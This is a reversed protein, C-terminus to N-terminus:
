ERRLPEVSVARGLTAFLREEANMPIGWRDEPGGPGAELGTYFLVLGEGEQVVTPAHAGWSDFASEGIEPLIRRPRSWHLGDESTRYALRQGRHAEGGGAASFMFYRGDVRDVEILNAGSLIPRESVARVALDRSLVARGVGIQRIGQGPAGIPQTPDALRLGVFYLDFGDERVVVSPEQVNNRYSPRDTVGPLVPADSVRRLAGQDAMMAERLGRGGLELRAAGIQYRTTFVGPAFVSDACYFVYLAGDAVVANATEVRGNDWADGSAPALVPTSRVEWSLGQDASFAYGIATTLRSLALSDDEFSAERDRFLSLGDATEVFFSSFFLHYGEDDTLVCPDIVFLPTSATGSALVPKGVPEQRFTLSVAAPGRGQATYLAHLFLGIVLAGAALAALVVTVCARRRRGGSRVEGM